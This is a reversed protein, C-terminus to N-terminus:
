ANRIGAGELGSWNLVGLETLYQLRVIEPTEPLHPLRQDSVEDTDMYWATITM